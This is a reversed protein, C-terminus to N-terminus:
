RFLLGRPCIYPVTGRRKKRKVGSGVQMRECVRMREWDEYLGGRLGDRYGIAEEEGM